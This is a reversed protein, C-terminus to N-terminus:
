CSLSALAAANIQQEQWAIHKATITTAAVPAPRERRQQREYRALLNLLHQAWRAQSRHYDVENQLVARVDPLFLLAPNQKLAAMQQEHTQLDFRPAPLARGPSPIVIVVPSRATVVPVAAPEPPADFIPDIKEAGDDKEFTTNDLKANGPMIQRAGVQERPILGLEWLRLGREYASSEYPWPTHTLEEWRPGAVSASQYKGFVRGQPGLINYRSGRRMVRWASAPDRAPDPPASQPFRPDSM